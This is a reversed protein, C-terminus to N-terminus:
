AWVKGMSMLRQRHAITFGFETLLDRPRTLRGRNANAIRRVEWRYQAADPHHVVFLDTDQAAVIARDRDCRFYGIVQKIGAFHRYGTPLELAPYDRLRQVYADAGPRELNVTGIRDELDSVGFPRIRGEWLSSGDLRFEYRSAYTDILAALAPLKARDVNPMRMIM